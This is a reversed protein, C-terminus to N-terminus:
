RGTYARKRNGHKKRPSRRHVAVDNGSANYEPYGIDEKDYTAFSIASRAMKDYAVPSDYAVGAGLGVAPARLSNFKYSGGPGTVTGRYTDDDHYTINVTLDGSYRKAM